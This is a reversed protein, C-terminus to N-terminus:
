LSERGRSVVLNVKSRPPLVREPRRSQSIVIGKKRKGSYAYGVKGTRCHRRAIMQMAAGVRKGVVKPVRCPPRKIAFSRSVPAAPNYNANGPQSTTVTCPGPGTLHVTAGTVRCRGGAAFSVALGSSATARVRFDPAGYTKNALPGFTITQGAKRAAVSEVVQPADRYAGDGPQDYKVLCTGSGSTMTFTAGSNSCVGSSSFAVPLGSSSLAAVAFTQNYTAIAPAHVTVTITQDLPDSLHPTAVIAVNSPDSINGAADRAVVTYAYTTSPLATTDSYTTGADATSEIAIGNRVIDYGTVAVDDEAATWTLDVRNPGSAVAELGTPATPPLTDAAECREAGSDTFTKGAEPVFEWEYSAPRLVLKIVGHTENDRVESGVFPVGFEYLSAGGTGVVFNRVGWELDVVGNPDLPAFREYFHNHATLWVDGSADYFAQYLAAVRTNNRRSLEEHSSFRSHHIYALTCARANAALDARLWQEQESGPGCPVDDCNSNLAYLRWGGLDFAYYGTAPDGAAEGFYNFYGIAGPTHYDHNGPIPKTKAKHRGWTPDYFASYEADTGDPYAMDGLAFVLDPAIADILTATAEDDSWTGAIDGAAAIVPDGERGASEGAGSAPAVSSSAALVMTVVVLGCAARRASSSVGSPLKRLRARPIAM